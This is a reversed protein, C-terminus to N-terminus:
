LKVALAQGTPLAILTERKDSFFEDLMRRQDEYGDWGYDDMVLLGGPVLRPYAYDLAHRSAAAGNLDLHCFALPGTETCELTDFVDGKVYVTIAAWRDLFAQVTELSTDAWMGAFDHEREHATLRDDDPIGSFTDFLFYRRGPQLRGTALVMAACGGRYVGFEAFAGDLEAAQLAARTLIWVRWRIDVPGGFWHDAVKAWLDAFARDNVFPSYHETALGDSNFTWLITRM